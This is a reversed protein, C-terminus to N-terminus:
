NKFELNIGPRDLAIETVEYTLRQVMDLLPEALSEVEEQSFESPKDILRDIIRVMQSIVGGIVFEEKVIMFQLVSVIVTENKEEDKNLLQFTVEFNTEPTGNEKEWELNRADYHYQNVFEKERYVQM